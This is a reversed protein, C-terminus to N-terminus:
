QGVVACDTDFGYDVVVAGNETVQLRRTLFNPAFAIVTVVNNENMLACAMSGSSAGEQDVSFLDAGSDQDNITDCTVSVFLSGDYLRAHKYQIARYPAPEVTNATCYVTEQVLGQM